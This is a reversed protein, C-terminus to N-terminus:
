AAYDVVPHRFLAFVRHPLKQLLHMIFLMRNVLIDLDRLRQLKRLDAKLQGNTNEDPDLEPSHIRGQGSRASRWGSSIAM